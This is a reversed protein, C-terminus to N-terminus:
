SWAQGRDERPFQGRPRVIYFRCGLLFESYFAIQGIPPKDKTLAQFDERLAPFMQLKERTIDALLSALESLREPMLATQAKEHFARGIVSSFDTFSARSDVKRPESCFFCPGHLQFALYHDKGDPLEGIVSPRVWLSNSVIRRQLYFRNLDEIEHFAPACYYVKHGEADLQLLMEHQRSHRAPRLHMRFYPISLFGQKAERARRSLIGDSLKFQLFLPLGPGQLMVDYGGGQQGERYLSPFVPAATLNTGYWDILEDTVAYGYSFESIDPRM